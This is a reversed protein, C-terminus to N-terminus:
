KNSSTFYDRLPNSAIKEFVDIQQLLLSNKKREPSKLPLTIFIRDDSHDGGWLVIENVSFELKPEIKFDDYEDESYALTIHPKYEKFTKKYDIKAKDFSKCIKEHLKQLEKSKIPIIIPIPNDQYSPFHSVESSEVLFPETESTINFAVETAKIIESIPWNDEFCLITIHYESASEKEGPVDLDAILRGIEAPIKIGLFAM